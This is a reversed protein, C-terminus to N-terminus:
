QSNQCAQKLENLKSEKKRSEQLEKEEKLTNLAINLKDIYFAVNFDDEYGNAKVSKYVLRTAWMVTSVSNIKM